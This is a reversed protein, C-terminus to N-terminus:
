FAYQELRESMAEANVHPMIIAAGVARDPCIAGFLYASEHRNDRVMLPRTGVPAWIYSHTGKQGM